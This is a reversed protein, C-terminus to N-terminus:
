YRPAPRFAYRAWTASTVLDDKERLVVTPLAARLMIRTLEGRLSARDHFVRRDTEVLPHHGHPQDHVALITDAAVLNVAREPDCLLTRPEEIVADPKREM